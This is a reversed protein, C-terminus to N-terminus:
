VGGRRATRSYESEAYADIAILIAALSLTGASSMAATSLDIWGIMNFFGAAFVQVLAGLRAVSPNFFMPIVIIMFVSFAKLTDPNINLDDLPTQYSLQFLQSGEIEGFKSSNIYYEAMVTANESSNPVSYSLGGSSKNSITDSYLQNKKEGDTYNFVTLTAEDVQGDPFAFDLNVSGSEKYLNYSINGSSPDVDYIENIRITKTLDVTDTYINGISRSSSRDGSVVELTYKEGNILYAVTKSEADFFQETLVREAGGIDKKLRLFGDGYNGTNDRLEFLTEVVQNQNADVLWITNYEVESTPLLNRQYIDTSSYQVTHKMEELQEKAAVLYRSKEVKYGTAGSDCLLTATTNGGPPLKQDGSQELKYTNVYYPNQEQYSSLNDQDASPKATTPYSKNVYYNGWELDIESGSYSSADIYLLENNSGTRKLTINETSTYVDGLNSRVRDSDIFDSFDVLYPNTSPTIKKSFAYTQNDTCGTGAALVQLTSTKYNPAYNQTEGISFNFQYYGESLTATYPNGVEAGERELVGTGETATGDVTVEEGEDVLLGPSFELTLPNPDKAELSVNEEHYNTSNIERTFTKNFYYLDQEGDGVEVTVNGNPIDDYELEVPNSLNLRSDNETSNSLYINWSQFANGTDKQYTSVNLGRWIYYSNSISNTNGADDSCEVKFTNSQPDHIDSSITGNEQLPETGSVSDFQNGNNYLQCSYTEGEVDDNDSASFSWSVNKSTYNKNTPESSSVTPADNTITFTLNEKTTTSGDSAEYQITYQKEADAKFVDLLEADHTSSSSMSVSDNIKTSGEWVSLSHTISDGDPDSTNMFADISNSKNPNDPDFDKEDISPADNGLDGEINNLNYLDTREQSSLIKQYFHVEDIMGEFAQDLNNTDAGTQGGAGRMGILYDGGNGYTDGVSASTSALETNNIYGTITGSSEDWTILVFRLENDDMGGATDLRINAASNTGDYNQAFLEGEGDDDTDEIRFELGKNSSDRNSFLVTRGSSGQDPVKFWLGVSYDTDTNGDYSSGANLYDGNGDGIIGKGNGWTGQGLDVGEGSSLDGNWSAADNNQCYDNSPSSSENLPHWNNCSSAPHTSTAGGIIGTIIGFILVAKLYKM